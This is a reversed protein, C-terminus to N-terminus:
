LWFHGILMGMVLCILAAGAVGWDQIVSTITKKRTLVAHIDWLLWAAIVLVGTLIVFELTSM